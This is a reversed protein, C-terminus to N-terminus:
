SVDDGAGGGTISGTVLNIASTFFKGITEVIETLIGLM